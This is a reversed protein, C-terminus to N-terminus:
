KGFFDLLNLKNNVANLFQEDTEYSSIVLLYNDLRTYQKLWFLHVWALLAGLIPLILTNIIQVYVAQSAEVSKLLPSESSRDLSYNGRDREYLVGLMELELLAAEKAIRAKNREGIPAGIASIEAKRVVQKLEALRKFPPEPSLSAVYWVCVSALVMCFLLSVVGCRKYKERRKEAELRVRTLLLNSGVETM